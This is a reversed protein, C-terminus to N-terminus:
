LRGKLEQTKAALERLEFEEPFRGQKLKSFILDGDFYVEFAGTGQLTNQLVNGIVWLGAAAGFRNGRVPNYWSPPSAYGLLPFIHDGAAVFAIGAVQVVPIVKILLRKPLPPPYNSLAVATGPFSNMLATRMELATKKYSCSSCFSIHFRGGLSTPDAVGGGFHEPRPAVHPDSSEKHHHHHGHHHPPPPSRPMKARVGKGCM